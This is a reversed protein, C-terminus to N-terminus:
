REYRPDKEKEQDQLGSPPKYWAHQGPRRDKDPLVALFTGPSPLTRGLLSTIVRLMGGGGVIKQLKTRVRDLGHPQQCGFYFAPISEEGVEVETWIKWQCGSFIGKGMAQEIEFLTDLGVEVGPDIAGDLQEAGQGERGIGDDETGEAVVFCGGARIKGGGEVEEAMGKGNVEAAAVKGGQQGFGPRGERAFVQGALLALGLEQVDVLECGGRGGRYGGLGRWAGGRGGRDGVEGGRGGEEEDVIDESGTSGHAGEDAGEAVMEGGAGYLGEGQGAGVVVV